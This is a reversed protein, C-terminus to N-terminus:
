LLHAHGLDTFKSDVVIEVEQALRLAFQGSTGLDADIVWESREM